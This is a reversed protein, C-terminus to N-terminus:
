FKLWFGLCTPETLHNGFYYGDPALDNLRSSIRLFEELAEQSEWWLDDDEPFLTNYGRLIASLVRIPGELSGEFEVLTIDTSITRKTDM